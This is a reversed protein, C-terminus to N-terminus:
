DVLAQYTLIKFEPTLPYYNDRRFTSLDGGTEERFKARCSPCYCDRLPIPEDVFYGEYGAETVIDIMEQIRAVAVPNNYCGAPRHSGDIEVQFCEPHSLLFQSSRGGGFLNLAGWFIAIPRSGEEKALTPAFKVKGLFYVFDNEQMCIFVDDLQLERMARFDTELHKPNHHRMYSVDTKM